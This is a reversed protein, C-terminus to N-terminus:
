FHGIDVGTIAGERMDTDRILASLTRNNIQDADYLAILADRESRVALLEYEKQAETTRIAPASISADEDAMAIIREYFRIINECQLIRVERDESQQVEDSQMLTSIADIAALAMTTRAIEEEVLTRSKGPLKLNKLLFPLGASGVILSVLITGTALFIVLNRAPLDTGDPMLLPISLVAALTLAGRVGALTTVLILRFSVAPQPQKRLLYDRLSFLKLSLWVWFFRLVFLAATIALVYGIITWVSGVQAEAVDLPAKRLIDPLQVGLLIFIAGNFTMEIMGWVAVSQIRTTFSSDRNFTTYNMMIGAAVAALIGSAGLHEALMYSGFPLLLSLVIHTSGLDGKWVIFRYRVWSVLISLAVGVLLGGAAIVVFSVAADRFVFVGTMMAALAFKFAVLGSADNLLSEGRLINLLRLPLHVRGTIAGLAVADTPSLVAALAFALPLPIVPVLWHIFYGAGLVTFFVLGFALMFISQKEQFFAKRSTHWGDSFLLPPIFLLLFLEPNLSIHVGSDPLIALAAGFAIQLLPLPLPIFRVLINSVAILALFLLVIYVAVM